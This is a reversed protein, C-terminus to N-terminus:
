LAIKVAKKGTSVIYIGAPLRKSWTGNVNASAVKLGQATFVDIKAVGKVSLVGGLTSVSVGDTLVTSLGNQPKQEFTVEFDPTVSDDMNEDGDYVVAVAYIRKEPAFESWEIDFTFIHSEDTALMVGELSSVARGDEILDVTYLGTTEVGDNVVEVKVWGKGDISIHQPFESDVIALNTLYGSMVTFPATPQSALEGNYVIVRYAQYGRPANEITYSVGDGPTLMSSDEITGVVDNGRLIEVKSISTLAEGNVTESPLGFTLKIVRSGKETEEAQLNEAPMPTPYKATLEIDDLAMTMTTYLSTENDTFAVSYVGNAPVTFTMTKEIFKADNDSISYQVDNDIDAVVDGEAKSQNKVLMVKFKAVYMEKMYDTTLANPTSAGIKFKLTYEVGAMFSMPCTYLNASQAWYSQKELTMCKQGDFEGLEWVHLNTNGPYRADDNTTKYCIADLSEVNNFDQSYPITYPQGVLVSGSTAAPGTTEGDNVTVIYYYEAIPGEPINDTVSLNKTKEVVNVAGPYRTVTYTINETDLVGGNESEPAQWSITVANGDAALSIGTVAKPTDFGAFVEADAKPGAGEANSLVVSIKRTGREMTYTQEFSGRANIKGTANTEPAKGDITLSWTLEGSLASGGFTETPATFTVKVDTGTGTFEGKLNEAAAPAGKSTAPAPIYFANYGTTGMNYVQTATFTTLDISYLIYSYYTKAGYFLKGSKADYAASENDQGAYVGINGKQTLTGDTTSITYINGTGGEIGWLTGESDFALATIKTSTDSGVQTVGVTNISEGNYIGLRYGTSYAGAASFWGYIKESKADYAMDTAKIAKTFDNWSGDRYGYYTPSWPGDTGNGAATAMFAFYSSYSYWTGYLTETDTFTGGSQICSYSIYTSGNLKTPNPESGETAITFVGRNADGVGVCYIVSPDDVGIAAHSAIAVGGLLSISLLTTHLSRKM